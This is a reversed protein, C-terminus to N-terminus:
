DGRGDDSVTTRYLMVWNVRDFPAVFSEGGLSRLWDPGNGNYAVSGGASEILKVIAHERKYPVWVSAAWSAAAGVVLVVTALFIWLPRPLSISLRSPEPVGPCM